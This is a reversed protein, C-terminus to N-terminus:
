LAGRRDDGRQEHLSADRVIRRPVNAQAQPVVAVRSIEEERQALIRVYRSLEDALEVIAEEVTRVRSNTRELSTLKFRPREDGFKVRAYQGSPTLSHVTGVRGYHRSRLSVVRVEEGTQLESSVM